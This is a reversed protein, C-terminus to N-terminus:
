QIETGFTNYTHGNKFILLQGDRLIKVAQASTEIAEFGEEQCATAPNEAFYVRALYCSLNKDCNITVSKANINQIVLVPDAATEMDPDACYYIDGATASATFAKRVNGKIAIGLINQTATFTLQKGERCGFYAPEEKDETENAYVISGEACHVLINGNIFAYEKGFLQTDPVQVIQPDQYTYAPDLDDETPLRNATSDIVVPEGGIVIKQIRRQGKEGSFAFEVQTASGTWSDVKWDNKDIAEGGSILTGNNANMAAYNKNSASSKACVLQINTLHEGSITIINGSYVRMEPKQTEYDVTVTPATQGNGKEIALMIGDKSQSKDEASTFTFVTEATASLAIFSAIVLAFIKKM